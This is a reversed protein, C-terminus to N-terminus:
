LVAAIARPRRVAFLLHWLSLNPTPLTLFCCDSIVPLCSHAHIRARGDGAECMCPVACCRVQSAAQALLRKPMAELLQQICDWQPGLGGGATADGM